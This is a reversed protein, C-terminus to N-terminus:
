LLLGFSLPLPDKGLKFPQTEEQLVMGTMQQSLHPVQLPVNLFHLFFVNCTQRFLDRTQIGQDLLHLLLTLLWCAFKQLHPLLSHLWTTVTWTWAIKQSQTNGWSAALGLSDQELSVDM